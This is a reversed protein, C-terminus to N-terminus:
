YRITVWNYRRLFSATFDPLRHFSCLPKLDNSVYRPTATSSLTLLVDIARSKPIGDIIYFLGKWKNVFASLPALMIVWSGLNLSMEAHFHKRQTGADEPSLFSLGLPLGLFICETKNEL